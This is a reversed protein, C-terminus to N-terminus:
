NVHKKKIIKYNIIQKLHKEMYFLPFNCNFHKLVKKKNFANVIMVNYNDNFM